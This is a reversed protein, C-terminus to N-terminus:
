ASKAVDAEPADEIEGLAFKRSLLAVTRTLQDLARVTKTELALNREELRQRLDQFEQAIQSNELAAIRMEAEELVIALDARLSDLQPAFDQKPAEPEALRDLRLDAVSLEL